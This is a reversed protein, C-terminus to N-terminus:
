FRITAVRFVGSTPNIAAGTQYNNFRVTVVNTGSVWASYCSNANTSVQPVGLQIVDGLQAGTLPLTLDSSTCAATSPFDLVGSNAFINSMMSGNGGVRLNPFTGLAFATDGTLMLSGHVLSPGNSAFIEPSTGDIIRVVNNSDDQMAIDGHENITLRTVDGGFENNLRLEFTDSDDAAGIFLTRSINNRVSFYGSIEQAGTARIFLGDNVAFGSPNGIRPYFAGTQSPVIYDTGSVASILKKNNDVKVLGSSTLNKVALHNLVSFGGNAGSYYNIFSFRGTTGFVANPYVNLTGSAQIDGFKGDYLSYVNGSNGFLNVVKYGNAVKVDNAKLNFTYIPNSSPNGGILDNGGGDFNGLNFNCTVSTGTAIQPVTSLEFIANDNTSASFDIIGLNELTYTGVPCIGSIAGSEVYGPFFRFFDNVGGGNSDVYIKVGPAITTAGSNLLPIAQLKNSFSVNLSQFIVINAGTMLLQNALTYDYLYKANAGDSGQDPLYFLQGGSLQISAFGSSFRETAIKSGSITNTIFGSPNIVLPYFIGTSNGTWASLSAGTNALNFSTAFQGTQNNTIYGSPNTALPYFVGTSTGTWASLSAGTASLNSSTAFQGTQSTTVFSGTQGSIIITQGSAQLVINGVGTFNISGSVTSGTVAISNVGGAQAATLYGSPNSGLPYYPGGTTVPKGTIFLREVSWTGSLQRNSTSWTLATSGNSADYLIYDGWDVVPGSANVLQLDGWHITLGGNNYLTFNDWDISLNSSSDYTRRTGWNLGTLGNSTILSSNGGLGSVTDTGIKEAFTKIGSITQNGTTRSFTGDTSIKISQGSVSLTIGSGGTLVVNGSTNGGTVNINNVGGAQASTLYGSPNSSLPYYPGGTTMNVFPAYSKISAAVDSAAIGRNTTAGTDAVLFIHGSSLSSINGYQSYKM